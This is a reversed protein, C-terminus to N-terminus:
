TTLLERLDLNAALDGTLAAFSSVVGGIGCAWGIQANISYNSM